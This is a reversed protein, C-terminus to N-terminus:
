GLHFCIQQPFRFTSLFFVLPHLLSLISLFDVTLSHAPPGKTLVRGQGWVKTVSSLSPSKPKFSKNDLNNRICQHHYQYWRPKIVQSFFVILRFNVHLSFLLLSAFCYTIQRFHRLSLPLCSWSRRNRDFPLEARSWESKASQWYVLLRM